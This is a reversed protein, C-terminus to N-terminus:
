RTAATSSSSPRATSRAGALAAGRRAVGAKSWHAHRRARSSMDLVGLERARLRRHPRQDLDHGDHTAPASTSPSRSRARRVPRGQARDEAAAGDRCVWVGNLAVDLQTPSSRPTPPASRPSCGAGTRTRAPSRASSCTAAPWRGASRRGRRGGDGRRRGRDRHEEDRGRRRRRLQRALDACVTTSRPSCSTTPRRRGRLRRLRAAPRHRQHVHLRRLRGPRLDDVTAQRLAADLRERSSSPTPPSSSSCRPWGPRSCAPARPWGASRPLGRRGRRGAEPGIDTTM